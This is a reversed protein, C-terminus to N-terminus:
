CFSVKMESTFRMLGIITLLQQEGESMEKFTIADKVGKLRVRIKLGSGDLSLIDSFISSELRTFFEKPELGDALKNISDQSNSFL